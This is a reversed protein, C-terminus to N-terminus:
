LYAPNFSRLDNLADLSISTSIRGEDIKVDDAPIARRESGFVKDELDVVYAMVKGSDQNILVDELARAGGGSFYVNTGIMRSVLRNAAESVDLRLTEPKQVGSIDKIVVDADFSGPNTIEVNDFNVFGTQPGYMMFPFTTRFLVYEVRQDDPSLVLDVVNGFANLGNSVEGRLMRDASVIEKNMKTWGQWASQDNPSAASSAFPALMLSGCVLSACRLLKNDM